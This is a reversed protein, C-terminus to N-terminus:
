IATIKIWRQIEALVGVFYIVKPQTEYSCPIGFLYLTLLYVKRRVQQFKYGLLDTKM